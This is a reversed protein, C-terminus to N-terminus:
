ILIRLMLLKMMLLKVGMDSGSSFDDGIGSGKWYQTSTTTIGEFKTGVAEFGSETAEYGVKIAEYVKELQKLDLEM